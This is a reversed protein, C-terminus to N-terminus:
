ISRGRLKEYADTDTRDLTLPTVSIYGALAADFDIDYVGSDTWTERYSPLYLDNGQPLFEDVYYRSGMRTIRIGKPDVPINVNYM